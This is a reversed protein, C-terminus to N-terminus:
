SRICSFSGLSTCQLVNPAFCSLVWTTSHIRPISAQFTLPLLSGIRVFSPRWGRFLRMPIRRSYLFSAFRVPSPTITPIRIPGLLSTVM